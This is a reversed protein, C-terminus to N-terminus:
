VSTHHACLSPCTANLLLQTVLMSAEMSLTANRYFHAIAGVHTGGDDSFAWLKKGGGRQPAGARAPVARLAHAVYQATALSVNVYAGGAARLVRTEEWAVSDLERLMRTRHGWAPATPNNSRWVVRTGARQLPLLRTEVLARLSTRYRALLAAKDCVFQHAHQTGRRYCGAMDHHGSNVILASPPAGGAGMLQEAAAAKAGRLYAGIGPTVYMTHLVVREGAAARPAYTASARHHSPCFRLELAGEHLACCPQGRCRPLPMQTALRLAGDLRSANTDGGGGGGGEASLLQLLDYWNEVSTSDGLMVIPGRAGLAGLCRAVAAASYFSTTELPLLSLAVDPALAAGLGRVGSLDGCPVAPVAARAARAPAARTRSAAPPAGHARVVGPRWTAGLLLASAALLTTAIALAHARPQM